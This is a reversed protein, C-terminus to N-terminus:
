CDQIGRGRALFDGAASVDRAGLFASERFVTTAVPDVGAAPAYTKRRRIDETRRIRREMQRVGMRQDLTGLREAYDNEPIARVWVPVIECANAIGQVRARQRMSEAHYIGSGSEDNLALVHM